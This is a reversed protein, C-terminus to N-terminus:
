TSAHPCPAHCVCCQTRLARADSRLAANSALMAELGEHRAGAEQSTDIEVAVDVAVAAPAEGDGARAELLVQVVDVDGGGGRGAAGQTGARHTAGGRAM